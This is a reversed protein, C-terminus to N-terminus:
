FEEFFRRLKLLVEKISFEKESRNNITPSDVNKEERDKLAEKCFNQIYMEAEETLQKQEKFQELIEILRVLSGKDSLSIDKKVNLSEQAAKILEDEEFM